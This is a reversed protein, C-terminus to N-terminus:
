REIPSIRPTLIIEHSKRTPQTTQPHQFNKSQSNAPM